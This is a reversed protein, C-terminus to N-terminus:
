NHINSVKEEEVDEAFDLLDGCKTCLIIQAGNFNWIGYSHKFICRLNM